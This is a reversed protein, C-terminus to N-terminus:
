LQPQGTVLPLRLSRFGLPMVSRRVKAVQITAHTAARPPPEQLPVKLGPTTPHIATQRLRELPRVKLGPISRRTATRIHPEQLLV